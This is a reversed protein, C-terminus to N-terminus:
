VFFIYIYINASFLFIMNLCVGRETLRYLVHYVYTSSVFISYLIYLGEKLSAHGLNPFEARLESNYLSASLLEQLESTPM